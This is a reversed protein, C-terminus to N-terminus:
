LRGYGYKRNLPTVHREIIGMQERTLAEKWREDLRIESTSALRMRNGIIHHEFNRFDHIGNKAPVGIFDYLRTLSEDPHTCLDEYRLTLWRGPDFYRRAHESGQNDAVWSRAAEEPGIGLNKMSSWSVARGDRVLHIVKMKFSPVRSMFVAREPRKSSDLFVGRGQIGLVTEVLAEIRALVRRMERSAAPLVQLAASRATELVPGRQVARLVVDSLGGGNHRFDLDADWIDFPQGREEMGRTVRQWFDCELIPTQCSCFYEQPTPTKGRPAIGLEGITAIRPHSGLLFTLLTSGSYGHGMIYVLDTM